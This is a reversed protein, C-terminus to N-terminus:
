DKNMFVVDKKKSDCKTYEPKFKYCKDDQQFIKGEIETLDTAQFILCNKEKCVTRFFSALGFGFIISMILKGTPTHIFKSLHLM